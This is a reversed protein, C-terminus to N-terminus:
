FNEDQDEDVLDHTKKMQGLSRDFARICCDLCEGELYIEKTEFKGECLYQLALLQPDNTTVTGLDWIALQHACPELTTALRHTCDNTEIYQICM